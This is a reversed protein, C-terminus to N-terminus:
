INPRKLKDFNLVVTFVREIRLVRTGGTVFRYTPQAPTNTSPPNIKIKKVGPAPMSPLQPPKEFVGRYM